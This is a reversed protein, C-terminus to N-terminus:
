GVPRESVLVRVSAHLLLLRSREMLEASLFTLAPRVVGRCVCAQDQVEASQLQHPNHQRTERDGDRCAKGMGIPELRTRLIERASRESVRLLHLAHGESRKHCDRGAWRERGRSTYAAQSSAPASGSAQSWAAAPSCLLLRPRATRRSSVLITPM